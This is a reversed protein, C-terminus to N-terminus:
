WGVPGVRVGAERGRLREVERERREAVRERRERAAREGRVRGKGGFKLKTILDAAQGRTLDSSQMKGERVRAKNLYAIQAASARGRRWGQQSSIYRETFRASAFTDAAHVASPLTPSTALLRPRTYTPTLTTPSTYKQVHHVTYTEEEPNPTQTENETENPQFPPSSPIKRTITLWGSDDSLIYKEKEEPTKPNNSAIRVWAYRSLSRIHKESKLDHILDYITDYKTFTLTIPNNEADTAKSSDDEEQNNEEPVADETAQPTTSRKTLETATAANIIEDPHLGFLTPTSVVGADVTGVMDIIHCDQKGRHLRLGRGIMQVLLNQSRTPRALLVCDINPIDTGETFLGCNLLVPFAGAKFAGLEADRQRQPTDATIYRADIGHARFAETLSRTHAVNVCFVLTSHRDAANALWARVTITNTPDTNVARALSELQFDGRSDSKVGSLKANSQVTTFVANALWKDNIMDLYDKHYVIHDIAAGLRLGDARAFTASVGVLVPSSSGPTPEKLGFHDLVARYTPAVIHHAEDVLILKFRTPDFKALRDQSLLSRISAITIDATGTSKSNSM